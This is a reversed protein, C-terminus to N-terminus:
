GVLALLSFQNPNESNRSGREQRFKRKVLVCGYVWILTFLFYFSSNAHAKKTSSQYWSFSIITNRKNIWLVLVSPQKYSKYNCGTVQQCIARVFGLLISQCGKVLDLTTHQRQCKTKLQYLFWYTKRIFSVFLYQLMDCALPLPSICYQPSQDCCNVFVLLSNM